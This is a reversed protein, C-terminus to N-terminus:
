YGSRISQEPEEDLYMEVATTDPCTVIYFALIVHSLVVALLFGVTVSIAIAKGLSSKSSKLRKM